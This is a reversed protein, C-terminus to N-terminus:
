SPFRHPPCIKACWWLMSSPRGLRRYSCLRGGSRLRAGQAPHWQDRANPQNRARHRPRRTRSAGDGPHWPGGGCGTQKRRRADLREHNAAGSCHHPCLCGYTRRASVAGGHPHGASSVDPGPCDIAPFRRCCRCAAGPAHRCNQHCDHPRRGAIKYRPIQTGTPTALRSPPKITGCALSCRGPLCLKDFAVANTPLRGRGM